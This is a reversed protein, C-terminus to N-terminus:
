TKGRILSIIKHYTEKIWAAIKQYWKLPPETQPETVGTQNAPTPYTINVGGGAGGGGGEGATSANASPLCQGAHCGFACNTSSAYKLSYAGYMGPACEAGGYARVNGICIDMANVGECPNPLCQADQCGFGCEEGSYNICTALTESENKCTPNHMRVSGNCYNQCPTTACPNPNSLCQGEECGFGICKKLTYMCADTYCQATEGDRLSFKSLFETCTHPPTTITVGDIIIGNKVQYDGACHTPCATATEAHCKWDSWEGTKDCRSEAPCDSDDVCRVAKIAIMDTHVNVNTWATASTGASSAYQFDYCYLTVAPISPAPAAALKVSGTRQSTTGACGSDGCSKIETEGTEYTLSTGLCRYTITADGIIYGDKVNANTLADNYGLAATATATVGGESHTKTNERCYNYGPMTCSTIALPIIRPKPIIQFAILGAIIGATIAIGIIIKGAKITGM